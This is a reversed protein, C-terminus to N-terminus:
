SGMEGLRENIKNRYPERNNWITKRVFGKKTHHEYEQKKAYPVDSGYSWSVDADKRVSPPFSNKLKGTDVPAAESTENAMKRTYAETIRDLDTKLPGSELTRLVDRLGAVNVTFNQSM